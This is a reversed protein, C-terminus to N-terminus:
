RFEAAPLPNCSASQQAQANDLISILDDTAMHRRLRFVAGGKTHLFYGRGDQDIRQLNKADDDFFTMKHDFLRIKSGEYSLMWRGSRYHWWKRGLAIATGIFMLGLLLGSLFGDASYRAIHFAGFVIFAISGVLTSTGSHKGLTIPFTKMNQVVYLAHVV